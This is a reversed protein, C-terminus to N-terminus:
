DPMPKGVPPLGVCMADDEDVTEPLVVCEGQYPRVGGAQSMVYASISLTTYMPPEGSVSCCNMVVPAPGLASVLQLSLM